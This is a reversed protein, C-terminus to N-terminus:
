SWTLAFMIADDSKEFLWISHDKGLPWSAQWGGTCHSNCWSEIDHRPWSYKFEFPMGQYVLVQQIKDQTIM